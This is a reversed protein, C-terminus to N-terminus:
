KSSSVPWFLSTGQQHLEVPAKPGLREVGCQVCCSGPVGTLHSLEGLSLGMETMLLFLGRIYATGESEEYIHGCASTLSIPYAM